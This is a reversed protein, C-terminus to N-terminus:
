MCFNCIDELIIDELPAPTLSSVDVKIAKHMGMLLPNFNLYDVPSQDVWEPDNRRIKLGIWIKEMSRMGPLLTTIFDLICSPSSLCEQTRYPKKETVEQSDHKKERM